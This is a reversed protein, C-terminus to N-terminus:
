EEVVLIRCPGESYPFDVEEADVQIDFPTHPEVLVTIVGCRHALEAVLDRTQISSLNIPTDVQAPLTKPCCDMDRPVEGTLECRYGFQGPYLVLSHCHKEKCKKTTMQEAM